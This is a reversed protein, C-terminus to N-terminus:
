IKKTVKTTVYLWNQIEPYLLRKGRIGLHNKFFLNWAIPFKWVLYDIIEALDLSFRPIQLCLGTFISHSKLLDFILINM